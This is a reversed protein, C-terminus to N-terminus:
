KRNKKKEKKREKKDINRFRAGTKNTTTEIELRRDRVRKAMFSICNQHHRRATKEMPASLQFSVNEIHKIVCIFDFQKFGISSYFFFRTLEWM